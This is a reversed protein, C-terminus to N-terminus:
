WQYTELAKMSSQVAKKDDNVSVSQKFYTKAEKLHNLKYTIEGLHYSIVSNKTGQQIPIKMADLAEQYSGKLYFLWALSDWYYGNTSDIEVAKRILQEAKDLEKNQLILFYGYWNLFETNSPYLTVAKELLIEEEGKKNHRDALTAAYRFFLTDPTPNEKFENDFYREATSDKQSFMYFQGMLTNTSPIKVKRLNLLRLAKLSDDGAALYLQAAEPLMDHEKFYADPITKVSVLAAQSNSLLFQTEAIVYAQKEKPYGYGNLLELTTLLVKKKDEPIGETTKNTIYGLLTRYNTLQAFYQAANIFDDKQLYTDGIALAFLSVDDKSLDSQVRIQQFVKLMLEIDKEHQAAAFLYRLVPGKGETLLYDANGTIEKWQETQFLLEIYVQLQTQNLSKVDKKLTNILKTRQNQRIYFNSMAKFSLDDKFTDYAQNFILEAKVPDLQTYFDGVALLLYENDGARTYAEELLKNKIKNLYKANLIFLRFYNMGTPKYKVLYEVVDIAKKPKKQMVFADAMIGLIQENYMGKSILAEGYQNMETSETNQTRSISWYTELVDQKITISNQDFQEARQLLLLANQYDGLQLAADGLGYYVMSETSPNSQVQRVTPIAIHKDVNASCGVLITSLILLLSQIRNKM